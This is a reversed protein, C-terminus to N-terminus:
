WREDEPASIQPTIITKRSDECEIYGIACKIALWAMVITTSLSEFVKKEPAFPAVREVIM